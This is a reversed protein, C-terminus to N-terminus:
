FHRPLELLRTGNHSGFTHWWGIGFLGTVEFARPEGKYGCILNNFNVTGLVSTNVAKFGTSM